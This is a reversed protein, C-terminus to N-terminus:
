IRGFRVKPNFVTGHIILRLDPKGRRKQFDPPIDVYFVEKADPLATRAFGDVIVGAAAAGALCATGGSGVCAVAVGSGILAGIGVEAATKAYKGGVISVVAILKGSRGTCSEKGLTIQKEFVPKAQTSKLGAAINGNSDKSIEIDGPQYWKVRAIYGAQNYICQEASASASTVISALSAVLFSAVAFYIKKM